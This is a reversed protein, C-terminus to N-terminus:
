TQWFLFGFHRRRRKRERSDLKKRERSVRIAAVEELVLDLAGTRGTELAKLLDMEGDPRKEM